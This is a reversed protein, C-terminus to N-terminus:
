DTRRMTDYRAQGKYISDCIRHMMLKHWLNWPGLEEPITLTSM